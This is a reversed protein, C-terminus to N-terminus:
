NPFNSIMFALYDEPDDINFTYSDSWYGNYQEAFLKEYHSLQEDSLDSWVGGLQKSVFAVWVNSLFDDDDDEGGIKM